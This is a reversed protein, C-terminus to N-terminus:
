QYLCIRSRYDIKTDLLAATALYGRNSSKPDRASLKVGVYRTDPSGGSNLPVYFPQPSSIYRGVTSLFQWYFYGNGNNNGSNRQRYVNLLGGEFRYRQMAGSTYAVYSGGSLIWPGQSDAIYTGGEVVYLMRETYYTLAYADGSLYAPAKTVVTTEGGGALFVNSKKANGSSGTVKQIDDEIGWFPVILRMGSSPQNPNDNIMIMNANGPDKWVFDPSGSVVNQFSVGAATPAVGGVPTSSVVSYSSAVTYNADTTNNRLQPVSVAAHIDRTLRNIGERAEEHASNVATNKAYLIMGSNLVNLFVIGLIAMVMTSVVMEAATFGGLRKTKNHIKM